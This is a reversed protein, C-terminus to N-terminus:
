YVGEKVSNIQSDKWFNKLQKGAQARKIDAYFKQTTGVSAHRLQISMAPLRSLDDRVTLTTLTSRFDKTMFDVGSAEELEVRICRWCDASFFGDKGRYLNPFLFKAEQRGNARVWEGREFVYREIIPVMDGRILEIWEPASWSGIGKPVRVYLREHELDLDRFEALRLESPRLGTAFYLAAMGRAISGHWGSMRDAAQFIDRLDTSSISRINKHACRPMTLLGQALMHEVVFNKFFKLYSNLRSIHRRQTDPDYRSMHKIFAGIDDEGIHRPDMTRVLGAAHLERFMMDLQYLKREEEQLTTRGRWRGSRTRVYHPIGGAFPYRGLRLSEVEVEASSARVRGHKEHKGGSVLHAKRSSMM